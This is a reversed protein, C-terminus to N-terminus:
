VYLFFKKQEIIIVSETLYPNSIFVPILGRYYSKEENNSTNKVVDIKKKKVRNRYCYLTIISIQSKIHIKKWNQYQFLM